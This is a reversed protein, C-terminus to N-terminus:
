VAQAHLQRPRRPCPLKLRRPPRGSVTGGRHGVPQVRRGRCRALHNRRLSRREPVSAPSGMSRASGSGSGSAARADSCRVPSARRRGPQPTANRDSFFGM